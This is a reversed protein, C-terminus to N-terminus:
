AIPIDIHTNNSREIARENMFGFDLWGNVIRENIWGGTLWESGLRNTKGMAKPM